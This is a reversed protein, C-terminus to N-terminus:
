IFKRFENHKILLKNIIEESPMRYMDFSREYQKWVKILRIISEKISGIDKKLSKTNEDYFFRRAVKM